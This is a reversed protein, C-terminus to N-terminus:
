CEASELLTSTVKNAVGFPGLSVKLLTMKNLIFTDRGVGEVVIKMARLKIGLKKGLEVMTVVKLLITNIIKFYSLQHTHPYRKKLTISVCFCENVNIKKLARYPLSSLLPYHKSLGQQTGSM